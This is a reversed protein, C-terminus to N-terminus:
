TTRGYRQDAKSRGRNGSNPTPSPPAARERLKKGLAAFANIVLPHDGAGTVDGLVEWLKARVKADPYALAIANKADGLVTDAKNGSEKFYKQRWDARTTQFTDRQSAVIQEITSKLVAGHMDMFKQAAEQSLGAEAALGTFAEIQEPAANFGEPLKFAEYTPLTPKEAEPEAATQAEVDPKKEAEGEPKAEVAPEVPTEAVGEVAVTQTTPEAAEALSPVIEAAAPAEVSPAGATAAAPATATTEAGPTSPAQDAM